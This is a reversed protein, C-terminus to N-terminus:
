RRIKRGNKAGLNFTSHNCHFTCKRTCVGVKFFKGNNNMWKDKSLIEEATDWCESIDM